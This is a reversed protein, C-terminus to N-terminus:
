KREYYYKEIKPGLKNRDHTGQISSTSIDYGLFSLASGWLREMGGEEAKTEPLVKDFNLDVLKDLVTRKCFLMPGFVGVGTDQIEIDTEM